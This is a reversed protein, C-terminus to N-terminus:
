LGFCTSSISTILLSDNNGGTPQKTNNCRSIRTYSKSYVFIIFFEMAMEFCYLCANTMSISLTDHTSWYWYHPHQLHTPSNSVRPLDQMNIPAFLQPQPYLDFMPYLALETVCIASRINFSETIFHVGPHKTLVADPSWWAVAWFPESLLNWSYNWKISLNKLVTMRRIVVNRDVISQMYFLSGM